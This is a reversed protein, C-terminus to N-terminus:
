VSLWMIKIGLIVFSAGSAFLFVAAIYYGLELWSVPMTRSQDFLIDSKQDVAIGSSVLVAGLLISALSIIILTIM